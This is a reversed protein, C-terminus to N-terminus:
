CIYTELLKQLKVWHAVDTEFNQLTQIASIHVYFGVGAQFVWSSSGPGMLDSSSLGWLSQEKKVLCM